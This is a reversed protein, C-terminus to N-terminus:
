KFLSTDLIKGELKEIMKEVSTSFHDIYGKMYATIDGEKVLPTLDIAYSAATM